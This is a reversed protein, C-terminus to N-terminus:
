NTTAQKKNSLHRQARDRLSKAETSNPDLGIATAADAIAGKYDGLQYKTRARWFYKSADQPDKQLAQNFDSLAKQNNHLEYWSAGRWYLALDDTSYQLFREDAALYRDFDQIASKYDGLQHQAIGRQLYYDYSTFPTFNIAQNYDQIAKRYNGLESYLRARYNYAQWDHPNFSLVKSYDVIAQQRDRDSERISGLKLYIGVAEPNVALVKKYDGIAGQFDKTDWEQRVRARSLYINIDQPDLMLAQNYDHLAAQFNRQLIYVFARKLYGKADPRLRLAQNYDQLAGRNDRLLYRAEGRRWYADINKPNSRLARDYKQRLNEIFSKDGHLGIYAEESKFSIGVNYSINQDVRVAQEYDEIAGQFDGLEQRANGRQHYSEGDTPYLHIARDYNQIAKQYDKLRYHLQGLQRYAVNDNPNLQLIRNYDRIALQYDYEGFLQVIAAGRQHLAKVDNPNLHLARDADEIKQRYPAAVKELFQRQNRVMERREQWSPLNYVAYIAAISGLLSAAYLVSLLALTTKKAANEYREVLQKVLNYKDFFLIEYKSEYWVKFVVHLLRDGADTGDLTKQLQKYLRAQRFSGPITAAVLLGIILAAYDTRGFWVLLIVAFVKLLVEAYPYRCVLLSAIRGGDLPYIPLLNLLNVVILTVTTELQWDPVSAPDKSIAIAMILGLLIGPLPGALLVWVKQALTADHKYGTAAAGFFPLFFISSNQYGFFRMALLHGIEHLFIVGILIVLGVIGSAPQWSFPTAFAGIYFALSAILVWNGLKPPVNNQQTQLWQRYREVEWEFLDLTILSDDPLIKSM